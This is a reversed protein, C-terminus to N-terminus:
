AFKNCIQWRNSIGDLEVGCVGIKFGTSLPVRNGASQLRNNRTKTENTANPYRIFFELNAV